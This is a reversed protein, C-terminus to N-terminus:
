SPYNRLPIEVEDLTATWPPPKPPTFNYKKPLFPAIEEEIKKLDELAEALKEHIAPATNDHSQPM